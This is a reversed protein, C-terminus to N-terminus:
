DDVGAASGPGSGSQGFPGVNINPDLAIMEALIDIVPKPVTKDYITILDRPQPYVKLAKYFCLAAEIQKSALADGDICLLDARFNSCSSDQCLMEGQGVENMFYAEKDEVDTPFGDEQAENVANKIARKQEEGQAEEQEKAARAEKRSERKLAKRFEPDTRRKHDFYVAYGSHCLNPTLWFILIPM